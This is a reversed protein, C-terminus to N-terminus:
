RKKWLYLEHILLVAIVFIGGIFFLLVPDQAASGTAGLGDYAMKTAMVGAERHETPATGPVAVTAANWTGVANIGTLVPLIQSLVFTSIAVIGFLSAYKLLISRVNTHHPAVIFLQDSLSYIKVERGKISYKTDIIRVLGADLLNEIHYKVTTLPLALQDTIETLSKHGESLIRLIDSATQSGIAKAIKQAREDGPELIIVNEPM